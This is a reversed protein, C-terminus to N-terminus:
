LRRERRQTPYLPANTIPVSHPAALIHLIDIDGRDFSRGAESIYVNIGGILAGEHVLPMAIVRVLGEREILAKDGLPQARLDIEVHSDFGRYMSKATELPIRQTMAYDESLGHQAVTRLSTGEDDILMVSAADASELATASRVIEPLLQDLDLIRLM